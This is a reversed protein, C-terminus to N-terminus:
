GCPLFKYNEVCSCFRLTAVDQPLTSGLRIEQFSAPVYSFALGRLLSYQMEKDAPSYVYVGAPLLLEVLGRLSAAPFRLSFKRWGPAAGAHGVDQLGESLM